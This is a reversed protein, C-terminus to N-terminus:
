LDDLNLTAGDNRICFSRWVALTVSYRVFRVSGDCLVANLGGPHSSGFRGDAVNVLLTPDTIDPEPVYSGRRVVDDAFGSNYCNENDSCCQGAFPSDMYAVHVRGEAALLTNSTGDTINSTNVVASGTRTTVGDSDTTGGNGSYDCKAVGQYLRVQRRSPCYYTPVMSRFLTSLTGSNQGLQYIADQELHPLLHYTWSFRDLTDASCCASPGENGGTSFNNHTDHYNHFALGIQKLHNQCRARNAAERVKQVAPLLLGILIGIIAIVVLLEILTFARRKANM